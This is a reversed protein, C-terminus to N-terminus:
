YFGRDYTSYFQLFSNGYMDEFKGTEKMENGCGLCIKGEIRSFMYWHFRIKKECVVCKSM